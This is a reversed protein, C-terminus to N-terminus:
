TQEGNANFSRSQAAVRGNRDRARLERASNQTRPWRGLTLFVMAFFNYTPFMENSVM